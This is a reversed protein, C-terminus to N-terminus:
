MSEPSTSSQPYFSAHLSTPNNPPYPMNGFHYFYPHNGNISSPNPYGSYLGAQQAADAGSPLILDNPELAGGNSPGACFDPFVSKQDFIPPKQDFLPSKHDIENPYCHSTPPLKNEPSTM